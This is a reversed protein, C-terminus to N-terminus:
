DMGGDLNVRIKIRVRKIEGVFGSGDNMERRMVRGPSVNMLSKSMVFAIEVIVGM